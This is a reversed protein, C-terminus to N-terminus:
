PQPKPKPKAERPAPAIGPENGGPHYQTPFPAGREEWDQIAQMHEHFQYAAHPDRGRPPPIIGGPRREIRFAECLDLRTYKVEVVDGVRLDAVVNYYSDDVSTVVPFIPDVEFEPTRGAALAKSLRFMRPPQEPIVRFEILASGNPLPQVLKEVWGPSTVTISTKTIETVAGRHIGGWIGPVNPPPVGLPQQASMSTPATGPSGLSAFLALALCRRM